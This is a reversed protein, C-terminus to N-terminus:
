NIKRRKTLNNVNEVNQDVLSQNYSLVLIYIFVCEVDYKRCKNKLYSNSSFIFGSMLLSQRLFKILTVSFAELFCIAM